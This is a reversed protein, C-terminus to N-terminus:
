VAMAAYKTCYWQRFKFVVELNRLDKLKHLALWYLVSFGPVPMPLVLMAFHKCVMPLYQKRDGALVVLRIPILRPREYINWSTNLYQFALSLTCVQLFSIYGFKIPDSFHFPSNSKVLSAGKFSTFSPAWV